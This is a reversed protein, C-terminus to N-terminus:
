LSLLFVLPGLWVSVSIQALRVYGGGFAGITSALSVRALAINTHLQARGIIMHTGFTTFTVVEFDNAAALPLGVGLRSLLVGAHGRCLLM